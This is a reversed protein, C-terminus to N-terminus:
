TMRKGFPSVFRNHEMNRIYMPIIYSVIVLPQIGPFMYLLAIWHGHFFSSYSFLLSSCGCDVSSGCSAPVHLLLLKRPYM